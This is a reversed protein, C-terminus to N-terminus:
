THLTLPFKFVRNELPFKGRVFLPDHKQVPLTEYHPSPNIELLDPTFGFELTQLNNMDLFPTLQKFAPLPNGILDVLVLTTGKPQYVLLVDLEPVYYLHDPYGVILHFLTLWDCRRGGCLHSVPSRHQVLRSILTFDDRNDLHLKRLGPSKASKPVPTFFSHEYVERYGFQPYFKLVTENAFLFLFEYTQDCYDHVKKFLERILGRGRFEPIVGLTGIQAAKTEQGNLVLEMATISINAVVRDDQFFSFPKYAPFAIGYHHVRNFDLGFIEHAFRRLGAGAPTESYYDFRYTLGTTM